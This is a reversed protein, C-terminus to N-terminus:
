YESEPTGYAFSVLVTSFSEWENYPLMPKSQHLRREKRHCGKEVQRAAM